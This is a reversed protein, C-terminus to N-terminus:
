RIGMRRAALRDFIRSPLYRPLYWGTLLHRSLAYRVKPKPSELAHRIAESTVEVPLGQEGREPLAAQLKTLIPGFDTNLWPEIDIEGAKEWIPTKVSGPGIISVGIGYLMMERRLAHSMAELAHKSMAYPGFFPYAVEGSVSSINVIRGPQNAYGKEAGLLPLFAQTVAVVGLVNVELQWRVKEMEIHMLPGPVAVGANNVLGSLGQGNLKAAVLEASRKVAEHDTVDFLLPSFREGLETQLRQADGEKRVSGFVHWGNEILTRAADYGIGTSAGTIVVYKM